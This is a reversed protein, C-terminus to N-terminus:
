AAARELSLLSDEFCFAGSDASFPDVPPAKGRCIVSADCSAAPLHHTWGKGSIDGMHALTSPVASLKRTLKAIEADKAVLESDCLISQDCIM